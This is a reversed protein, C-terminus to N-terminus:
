CLFAYRYSLGSVGEQLAKKMRVNIINSNDNVLGIKFDGWGSPVSLPTPAAASAATYRYAAAPAGLGDLYARNANVFSNNNQYVDWNISWTMIGRLAPYTSTLTYQGGYSTGKVMYNFAQVLQQNTVQGSGAASASSPVGFLVQDPRLPPFFYNANGGVNFGKLLMDTMAVLYDPNGSSYLKNDTAM